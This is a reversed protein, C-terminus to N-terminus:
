CRRREVRALRLRRAAARRRARRARARARAGRAHRGRERAAGRDVRARAAAARDGDLVEAPFRQLWDLVSSTRGANVYHVWTEAILEGPRPTRAPRSRTTSRRTPRAPSATGRTRAATCSRCSSAARAARLEVRLLQAFLHHFRFWRRRDDLPLLFLNTRALSELAAASCAARRAGRRVAARVAARAGVHAAHVGAAGARLRRAGRQLPLRRRAREHRRLRPRAGAQGAQRGAVARRPLHGAPWGETRAVLLEVDDAALELGLRATSSSAPRRRAHLAPRRRAARAAAGHARLAGLPLAPDARTSLVLQVTAPLHDVFWAVSERAAASSLRHFDDLVLM